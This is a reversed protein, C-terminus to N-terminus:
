FLSKLFPIEKCKERIVHQHWRSCIKTVLKSNQKDSFKSRELPCHLLSNM